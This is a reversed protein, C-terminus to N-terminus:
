LTGSSCEKRPTEPHRGPTASVDGSTYQHLPLTSELIRLMQVPLILIEIKGLFHENSEYCVRYTVLFALIQRKKRIVILTSWWMSYDDCNSIILDSIM